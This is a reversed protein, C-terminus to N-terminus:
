SSGGKEKAGKEEASKEKVFADLMGRIEDLEDRSAPQAALAGMVLSRASGGFARKLLDGAIQQQTQEKPVSADYVHSGFREGRILLGKETMLQMQKLTTTYGNDKGLADHVERVTATGLRWLVALIDLEAATPLAM